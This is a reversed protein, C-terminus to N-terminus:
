QEDSHIGQKISVPQKEPFINPLQGPPRIEQHNFGQNWELRKIDVVEVLLLGNNLLAPDQFSDRKLDEPRYIPLGRAKKANSSGPRIQNKVRGHYCRPTEIGHSLGKKVSKAPAKVGKPCVSDKEM